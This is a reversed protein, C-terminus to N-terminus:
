KVILTLGTQTPGSVHLIGSGTILETEHRAGSGIAGWTTQGFKRLRGNLTLTAVTQETGGLDLAANAAISLDSEPNLANVAAWSGDKLAVVEDAVRASSVSKRKQRCAPM